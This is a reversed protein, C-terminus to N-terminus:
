VARYYNQNGNWTGTERRARICSAIITGVGIHPRVPKTDGPILSLPGTAPFILGGRAPGMAVGDAVFSGGMEGDRARLEALSTGPKASARVMVVISARIPEPLEPWARILDALDPSIQDLHALM